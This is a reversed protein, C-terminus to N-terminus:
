GHCIHVARDALIKRHKIDFDTVFQELVDEFTICFGIVSKQLQVVVQGSESDADGVLMQLM